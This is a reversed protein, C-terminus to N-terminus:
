EKQSQSLQQNTYLLVLLKSQLNKLFETLQKLDNHQSTVSPQESTGDGFEDRAQMKFKFCQVVIRFRDQSEQLLMQPKLDLYSRIFPILEFVRSYMMYNIDREISDPSQIFDALVEDKGDDVIINVDELDIGTTLM